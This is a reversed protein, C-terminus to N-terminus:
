SGITAPVFATSQADTASPGVPPPQVPQLAPLLYSRVLRRADAESTLDFGAAPNFLYSVVLRVVWEVAWPTLEVDVFRVLHPGAFLSAARYLRDMQTFGLYPLVLGPEHALIFQLGRHNVVFSASESIGAVLADELSQAAGLGATVQRSVATIERHALSRFLHEKGGPFARYLTARGCKAEHAIDSLSTKAVGWRGILALSADLIRDELGAPGDTESPSM